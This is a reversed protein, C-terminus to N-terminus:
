QRTERPATIELRHLAAEDGSIELGLHRPEDLSLPGGLYGDIFRAQGSLRVDAAAPRRRRIEFARDRSVLAVPAEDTDIAITLPSQAPETDRLSQQGPLGPWNGRVAEGETVVPM